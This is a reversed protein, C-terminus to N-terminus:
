YEGPYKLVESLESLRENDFGVKHIAPVIKEQHEQKDSYDRLEDLDFHYEGEGTEKYVQLFEELDTMRLADQSTIGIARPM